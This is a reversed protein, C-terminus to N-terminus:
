VTSNSVGGVRQEIGNADAALILVAGVLSSKHGLRMIRILALQQDAIPHADACLDKGHVALAQMERMFHEHDGAALAGRRLLQHEQVDIEQGTPDLRKRMLDPLSYGCRRRRVGM